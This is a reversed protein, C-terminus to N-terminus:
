ESGLYGGTTAVTGDDDLQKFTVSSEVGEQDAEAGVGDRLSLEAPPTLAVLEVNRDFGAEVSFNRNYISDSHQAVVVYQGEALVFEPVAGVGEAVTDGGPTLISWATSALADGGEVAVLRFSLRAAKHYATMETLRNPDVSVDARVVANIDGYKSVVHYPGAKLPIVQDSEVDAAILELREGQTGRRAYIDFTLDELEESSRRGAAGSLLMGGADLILTEFRDTEGLNVRLTAGARGYAVHILYKGPDLDFTTSGGMATAILPLTGTEDAETGFVRWALGDIIPPTDAVLKAALHLNGEDIVSPGENLEIVDSAYPLPAAATAEAQAGDDAGSIGKPTSLDLTLRVKNADGLRTRGFGWPQLSLYELDPSGLYLSQLVLSSSAQNSPGRNQGLENSSALGASLGFGGILSCGIYLVFNSFRMKMM